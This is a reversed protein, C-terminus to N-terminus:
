LQCFYKNGRRKFKVKVYNKSLCNYIQNTEFAQQDFYRSFNYTM